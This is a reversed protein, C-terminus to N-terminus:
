LWLPRLLFWARWYRSRPSGAEVLAVFCTDATSTVWDETNQSTLELLSMCHSLRCRQPQSSARTRLRSDLLSPHVEADQFGKLMWATGPLRPKGQTMTISYYPVKSNLRNQYCEGRRCSKGGKEEMGARRDGSFADVNNQEPDKKRRLPVTKGDVCM